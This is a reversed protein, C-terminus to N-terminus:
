DAATASAREAAGPAGRWARGGAVPESMKRKGPELLTAQKM